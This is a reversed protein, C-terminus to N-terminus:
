QGAERAREVEEAMQEGEQRRAMEGVPRWRELERERKQLVWGPAM